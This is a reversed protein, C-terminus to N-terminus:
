FESQRESTTEKDTSHSVLEEMIQLNMMINGAGTACYSLLVTEPVYVVDLM